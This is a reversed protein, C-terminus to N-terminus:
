INSQTRFVGRSQSEVTRTTMNLYRKLPLCITQELGLIVVVGPVFEAFM